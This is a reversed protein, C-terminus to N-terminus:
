VKKIFLDQAGRIREAYVGNSARKGASVIMTVSAGRPLGLLKKVRVEDFGEMPCSDYGAARFALMLNECALATTKTAWLLNGWYGFPGRPIVRFLGLISIALTKFPSFFNFPGNGYVFPVLKEYYARVAKPTDPRKDFYALNVKQGLSWRDPRAVCAILTPATRAAPQNLCLTKLKKLKDESKVWYFEWPQLNSSNPALLALSLCEEVVADPIQENTFVRVSRRSAIVKKFEEMNCLLAEEVYSLDPVKSFINESM